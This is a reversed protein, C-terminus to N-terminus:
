ATGLVSGVFGRQGRIFDEIPLAKKGALQVKELQLLGDGTGVVAKGDSLMVQGPSIDVSPEVELPRAQLIRLLRGNWVTRATPWPNYARVERAIQVAPKCWDIIGDEKRIMRTVTAATRDQPQPEIEGALWRPLTRRLLDAGQLSLRQSLSGATDDPHIPLPEQALIPGTDMGADMLMITSGTVEDGALIAATIPSAGRHRPLLSAHVNLCGHAPIDLVSQPLILGYAAVIVVEPALAALEAVPAPRRFTSPQLVRLHHALAFEKVPSPSIRRGRGAPRDPRTVVAVVNYGEEVLMRLSPVSFEPTGMFIVRTM